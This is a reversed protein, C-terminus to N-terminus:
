QKSPSKQSDIWPAADLKKKWTISGTAGKQRKPQRHRGSVAMKLKKPAKKKDFFWTKEFYRPLLAFDLSHHGLGLGLGQDKLM